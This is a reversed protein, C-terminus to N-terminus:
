LANSQGCNWHHSASELSLTGVRSVWAAGSFASPSSSGKSGSGPNDACAGNCCLKGGRHGTFEGTAIMTGPNSIGCIGVGHWITIESWLFSPAGHVGGLFCAGGANGGPTPPQCSESIGSHSDLTGIFSLLLNTHARLWLVGMSSSVIMRRNTPLFSESAKSLMKILLCGPNFDLTKAISAFLHLLVCSKRPSSGYKESQVAATSPFSDIM